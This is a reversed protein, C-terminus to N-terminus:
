FIQRFLNYHLIIIKYTEDWDRRKYDTCPTEYKRQRDKIRPVTLERLLHEM